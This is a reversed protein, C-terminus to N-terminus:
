PAKTSRRAVMGLFHQSHERHRTRHPPHVLEQLMSVFAPTVNVRKSVSAVATELTMNQRLKTSLHDIEAQLHHMELGVRAAVRQEMAEQISIAVAQSTTTAVFMVVYLSLRAM